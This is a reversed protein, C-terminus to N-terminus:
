RGEAKAIAAVCAAYARAAPTDAPSPFRTESAEHLALMLRLAELIDPAAAILLANAEMQPWTDPDNYDGDIAAVERTDADIVVTDDTPSVTWPGPSHKSM